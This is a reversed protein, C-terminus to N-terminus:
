PISSLWLRQLGSFRWRLGRFRQVNLRSGELRLSVINTHEQFKSIKSSTARSYTMWVWSGRQRPDIIPVRIEEPQDRLCCTGAECPRAGAVSGAIGTCCCEARCGYVVVNTVRIEPRGAPLRNRGDMVGCICGTEINGMVLACWATFASSREENEPSQRAGCTWQGFV